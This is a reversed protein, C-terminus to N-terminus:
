LLTQFRDPMASIENQYLDRIRDLAPLVLWGGGAPRYLWGLQTFRDLCQKVIDQVQSDDLASKHQDTVRAFQRFLGERYNEYERELLTMLEEVSAFEPKHLDIFFVKCLLMAVLLHKRELERQYPTGAQQWTGAPPELFYYRQSDELRHELRAGRHWDHYFVALEAENDRLYSLLHRQGPHAAQLHVGSRLLTDVEHFLHRSDNSEPLSPTALPQDPDTEM